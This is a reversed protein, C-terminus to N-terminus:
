QKKFYRSKEYLRRVEEKDTLRPNVPASPKRRPEKASEELANAFAEVAKPDTIHFSTFLSSTPM